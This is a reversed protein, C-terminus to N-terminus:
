DQLGDGRLQSLVQEFDDPLPAVFHKDQTGGPLRIELRHAHLMQRPFRDLSKRRGYVRDGAVPCGLFALHVRIQHTRGTLPEVELLAHEHFRELVLYSSIASRGRGESVVAMRKRNKVDRGIAAEVRGRQTPPFGDTLALYSKHVKRDKFQEQLWRHAQDDKAFLILGSTDKDLRHVVGPRQTGGVGRLDTAHGLIAHVLTGSSHGVSPHVVVGAPKNIVLVGSDEYIIDLPVLEPILETPEPAPITVQLAEGGELKFGTKTVIRGDVRVRGERILHQLRNRSMEVVLTVLLQDLRGGPSPVSFRLHRDNV